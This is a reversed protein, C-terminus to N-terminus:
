KKQYSDLEIVDLEITQGTKAEPVDITIPTTEKSFAGQLQDSEIGQDRQYVALKYKGAPVGKGARVLEFTGDKKANATQIESGPKADVPSLMVEIVGVGIDQNPVVLPQGGKLVKGKIVIGPKVEPNKPGGCGALLVLLSLGVFLGRSM